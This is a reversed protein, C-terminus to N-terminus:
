PQTTNWQVYISWMKKLWDDTSPCKPQKWTKAITFLAAIIMPHMHRKSNSSELYIGLLPIAPDCPLEVQLNKFIGWVTKGLLLVLKCEWWCHLVTGSPANQSHSGRVGM